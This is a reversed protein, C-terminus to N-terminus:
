APAPAEVPPTPEAAPEPTPEAPAAPAPAPEPEPEPATVPEAEAIVAADHTDLAARLASLHGNDLVFARAADYVAQLTINSM